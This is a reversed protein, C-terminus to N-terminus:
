ILKTRLILYISDVNLRVFMPAPRHRWVRYGSAATTLWAGEGLRQQQLRYLGRGWQRESWQVVAPPPTVRQPWTVRWPKLLVMKCMKLTVSEIRKSTKLRFREKALYTVDSCRPRRWSLNHYYLSRHLGCAVGGVAKPVSFCHRSRKCVNGCGSGAWM